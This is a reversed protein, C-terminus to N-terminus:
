RSKNQIDNQKGGLLNEVEDIRSFLRGIVEWFPKVAQRTRQITHQELYNVNRTTPKVKAKAM